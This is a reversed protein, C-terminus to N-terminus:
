RKNYSLPEIYSKFTESYGILEKMLRAEQDPQPTNSKEPGVGRGQALMFLFYEVGERPSHFVIGRFPGEGLRNAVQDQWQGDLIFSDPYAKFKKRTLKLSSRQFRFDGVWRLYGELRSVLEKPDTIRDRIEGPRWELIIELLDGPHGTRIRFHGKRDEERVVGLIGSPNSGTAAADQRAFEWEKRAGNTLEFSTKTYRKLFTSLTGVHDSYMALNYFESPLRTEKSEEALTFQVLLGPFTREWVRRDLLFDSLLLTGEKARLFPIRMEYSDGNLSEEFGQPRRIGDEKYTKRIALTIGEPVEQRLVLDKMEENGTNVIYVSSHLSFSETDAHFLPRYSPYAILSQALAPFAMLLFGFGALVRVGVLLKPTHPVPTRRQM